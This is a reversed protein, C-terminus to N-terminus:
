LAAGEKRLEDLCRSTFSEGGAMRRALARLDAPTDVDGCPPAEGVSLGAARTAALTGAYVTDGGYRQGSFLAPCPRKLGILYYGGDPTPGIAADAHELISFAASLHDPRLEPLDTGTLVCADYGGELVQSVARHMREGLDWGQQPFFGAARPFIEGLMDPEGEPSYAIFLDADVAAYVAALDRLFATHLRACQAGTLLPLLRTKTRGPLPLRTFCIVARRMM